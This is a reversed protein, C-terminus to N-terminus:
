TRTCEPVCLRLLVNVFLLGHGLDIDLKLPQWVGDGM